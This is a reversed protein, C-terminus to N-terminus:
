LFMKNALSANFKLRSNSIMSYNKHHNKSINEKEINRENGVFNNYFAYLESNKNENSNL